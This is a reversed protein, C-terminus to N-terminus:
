RRASKAAANTSTSNTVGQDGYWAVTHPYSNNHPASLFSFEESLSYPAHPGYGVVYFYRTSPKLNTMLCESTFGANSDVSNISGTANHPYHGSETGWFVLSYPIAVFTYWAVTM